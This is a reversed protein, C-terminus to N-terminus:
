RGGRNALTSSILKQNRAAQRAENQASFEKEEIEKILSDTEKLEQLTQPAKEIPPMFHKMIWREYTPTQNKQYPHADVFHVGSTSKNGNLLSQRIKKPLNRGISIILVDDLQEQHQMVSSLCEQVAQSREEPTKGMASIYDGLALLARQMTASLKPRKVKEKSSFLSIVKEVLSTHMSDKSLVDILAGTFDEGKHARTMAKAILKGLHRRESVSPIYPTAQQLMTHGNKDKGLYQCEFDIAGHDFLTIKSGNVRVQAGHRDSDIPGMQLLTYLETTFIAKAVAKKYAQQEKTKEPLDNFHEGHALETKKFRRGFDSIHAASIQFEQGDVQVQIGKYQEEAVKTQAGGVLFDAEIATLHRAQQIISPLAGFLKKNRSALKKSIPTFFKKFQNNATELANPHLMTLAHGTQAEPDDKVEITFGFSGSGLLRGVYPTQGKLKGDDFTEAAEIREFIQYRKPPNFNSKSDKLDEKISDSTGPYSHIAQLTKGGAAGMQSLIKKIMEGPRQKRKEAKHPQSTFPVKPPPNMAYLISIFLAKAELTECNEFYTDLAMTQYEAYDTDSNMEAKIQQFYKSVKQNNMDKPKSPDFLLSQIIMAQIGPSSNWFLRHFNVFATQKTQSTLQVKHQIFQNAEPSLLGSFFGEQNHKIKKDVLHVIKNASQPTLPQKLFNLIDLNFDNAHSCNLGERIGQVMRDMKRGNILQIQDRVFFSVEKQTEAKAMLRCLIADSTVNSFDMLYKSVNLQYIFEQTSSADKEMGIRKFHLDAITEILFDRFKTNAPSAEKLINYALQYVEERIIPDATKIQQTMMLMIKDELAENYLIHHDSLAYYHLYTDAGAETGLRDFLAGKNNYKQYEQCIFALTKEKELNLNGYLLHRYNHEAIKALVQNTEDTCNEAHTLRYGLKSLDIYKGKYDELNLEKLFTRNIYNRIQTLTHQAKLEIYENAFKNKFKLKENLELLEEFTKPQKIDLIEYFDYSFLEDFNKSTDFEITKILPTHCLLFLKASMDVNKGAPTKLFQVFPNNPSILIDTLNNNKIEFHYFSEQRVNKYYNETLKIIHEDEYFKNIVKPLIEEYVYQFQSKTTQAGEDIWIKQLQNLLMEAPKQDKAMEILEPDNLTFRPTFLNPYTDFLNEIRFYRSWTHSLNFPHKLNNEEPETILKSLEKEYIEEQQNLFYRENALYAEKTTFPNLFRTRTKFDEMIRDNNIKFEELLKNITISFNIKELFKNLIEKHKPNAEPDDLYDLIKKWPFEFPQNCVIQNLAPIYELKHFNYHHISQRRYSEWLLLSDDTLEKKGLLFSALTTNSKLYSDSFQNIKDASDILQELSQTRMDNQIRTRINEQDKIISQDGFVGYLVEKNRQEAFYSLPLDLSLIERMIDTQDELPFYKLLTKYLSSDIECFIDPRQTLLYKSIHIFAEKKEELSATHYGIENLMTELPSLVHINKLAEIDKKSYKNESPKSLTRGEVELTGILVANASARFCSLPHSAYIRKILTTKSNEDNKWFDLIPMPSYGANNAVTIGLLDCAHESTQTSRTTSYTQEIPHSLEHGLVHALLDIPQAKGDKDIFNGKSFILVPPQTDSFISANLPLKDSLFLKAGRLDGFLKEKLHKKNEEPVLFDDLIQHIYTQLYDPMEIAFDHEQYIQPLKSEKLDEEILEELISLDNYEKKEPHDIRYENIRKTYKDLYSNLRNIIASQNEM